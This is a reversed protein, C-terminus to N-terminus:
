MEIRAYEEDEKWRTSTKKQIHAMDLSVPRTFDMQSRANSKSTPAMKAIRRRHLKQRLRVDREYCLDNCKIIDRM